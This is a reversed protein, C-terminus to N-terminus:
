GARTSTTQPTAEAARPAVWSPAERWVIVNGNRRQHCFCHCEQWSARSMRWAGSCRQHKLNTCYWSKAKWSRRRM